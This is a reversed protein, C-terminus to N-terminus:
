ETENNESEEILSEWIKKHIYRAEKAITEASNSMEATRFQRKELRNIRYMLICLVIWMALDVAFNM